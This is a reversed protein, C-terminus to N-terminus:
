DELILKNISKTVADAARRRGDREAKKAVGEYITTIIQEIAADNIHHGVHVVRAMGEIRFSTEWIEVRHGAITKRRAAM